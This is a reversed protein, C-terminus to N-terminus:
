EWGGCGCYYQDYKLNHKEKLEFFPLKYSSPVEKGCQSCRATRGTLSPKEESVKDCHCIICYPKNDKTKGYGLHGCKMLESM